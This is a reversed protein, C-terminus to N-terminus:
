MFTIHGRIPMTVYCEDNQIQTTVAGVFLTEETLYLDEQQELRHVSYQTERGACTRSTIKSRVTIAPKAMHQVNGKEM